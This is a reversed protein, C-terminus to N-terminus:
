EPVKSITLYLSPTLTENFANNLFVKNMSFAKQVMDFFTDVAQGNICSVQIIISTRYVTVLLIMLTLNRFYLNLEM